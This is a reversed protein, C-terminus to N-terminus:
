NREDEGWKALPSLSKGAVLYLAGIVTDVYFWTKKDLSVEFLPFFMAFSIVSLALWGFQKTRISVYVLIVAAVSVIGKVLSYFSYPMDAIGILTLGGTAYFLYIFAKDIM